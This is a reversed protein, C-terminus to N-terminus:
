HTTLPLHRTPVIALFMDHMQVASGCDATDVDVISFPILHIKTPGGLQAPHRTVGPLSKVKQESAKGTATRMAFLSVLMLCGM